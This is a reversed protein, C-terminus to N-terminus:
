RKSIGSEPRLFMADIQQKMIDWDVNKIAFRQYRLYDGYNSGCELPASQWRGQIMGYGLHRMVFIQYPLPNNSHFGVYRPYEGYWEKWKNKARKFANIFQAYTLYPTYQTIGHTTISWGSGKACSYEEKSLGENTSVPPNDSYVSQPQLLMNLLPQANYMDIVNRIREDVWIQRRYDDFILSYTMRDLARGGDVSSVAEYASIPAFGKYRFYSLVDYLRELTINNQDTQTINDPEVKHLMCMIPTFIEQYPSISYNVVSMTNVNAILKLGSSPIAMNNTFRVAFGDFSFYLDEITSDNVHYNIRMHHLFGRDSTRIFTPYSDWYTREEFDLSEQEEAYQERESPTMSNYEPYMGSPLPHTIAYWGDGPRQHYDVEQVEKSLYIKEFNDVEDFTNGECGYKVIEFDSLDTDAKMVDVLEGWGDYDSLTFSKLVSGSGYHIAFISDTKEIYAGEYKTPMHETITVSGNADVTPYGDTDVPVVPYKLRISFLNKGYINAAITKNDMVKTEGGYNVSIKLGGADYYIMEQTVPEVTVTCLGNLVTKSSGKFLSNETTFDIMCNCSENPLDIGVGNYTRNPTIEAFVSESSLNNSDFNSTVIKGDKNFGLLIKDTADLLLYTYEPNDVSFETATGAIDIGTGFYETGDKNTAKIIKGDADTKVEVFEPNDIGQIYQTPILSKDEEKDVKIDLLSKLTDSTSFDDLFVVIKNLGDIETGENGNLIEAVISNVYNKVPKPVGIAWDISGDPKIWLLIRGGSDTVVKIYEPNEVLVDNGCFSWDNADTTWEDAM